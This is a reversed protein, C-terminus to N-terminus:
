DEPSKLTSHLMDLKWGNKTRIATASELWQLGGVVEGNKIFTATNHYAIWASNEKIKVEIFEFENVRKRGQLDYSSLERKIREM